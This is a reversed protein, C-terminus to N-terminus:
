VLAPVIARSFFDIICEGNRSVKSASSPSFRAATRPTGRRPARDPTNDPGPVRRDRTSPAERRPTELSPRNDHQPRRHM